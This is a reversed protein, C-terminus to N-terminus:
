RFGPQKAHLDLEMGYLRAEKVHAVWRLFEPKTNHEPSTFFRIKVLAPVIKSLALGAVLPNRETVSFPLLLDLCTCDPHLSAPLLQKRWAEITDSQAQYAAYVSDVDWRVALYRAGPCEATDSLEPHFSEDAGFTASELFHVRGKLERVIRRLVRDPSVMRQEEVPYEGTSHSRFFQYVTLHKLKPLSTAIQEMQRGTCRNTITLEELHSLLTPWQTEQVDQFRLKWSNGPILFGLPYSWSLTPMGTLGGKYQNGARVGALYFKQWPSVLGMKEAFLNQQSGHEGDLAM